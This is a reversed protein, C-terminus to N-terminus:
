VSIGKILVLSLYMDAFVFAAQLLFVKYVLACAVIKRYAPSPLRVDNNPVIETALIGM